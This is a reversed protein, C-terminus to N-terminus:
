KKGRIIEIQNAKLGYTIYMYCYLEHDTFRQSDYEPILFHFSGCKSVVHTEKRSYQGAKNYIRDPSTAKPKSQKSKAPPKQTKKATTKGYKKANKNAVVVDDDDFL